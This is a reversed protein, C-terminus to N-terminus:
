PRNRKIFSLSWLNFLRVILAMSSDPSKPGEPVLYKAIAAITRNAGLSRFFAALRRGLSPTSRLHFLVDGSFLDSSNSVSEYSLNLVTYVTTSLCSCSDLLGNNPLSNYLDTIEWTIDSAISTSGHLSTLTNMSLQPNM